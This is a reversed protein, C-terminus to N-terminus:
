LDNITAFTDVKIVSVDVGPAGAGSGGFAAGAGVGVHSFDSAAAVLVSQGANGAGAMDQNIQADAGIFAKTKTDVINVAAGVAM